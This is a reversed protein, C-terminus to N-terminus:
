AIGLEPKTNAPIWVKRYQASSARCSDVLLLTKFAVDLTVLPKARNSIHELFHQMQTMYSGAVHNPEQMIKQWGMSKSKFVEVSGHAGDLRLQDQTVV